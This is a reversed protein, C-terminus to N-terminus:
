ESGRQTRRGPRTERTPQGQKTRSSPRARWKALLRETQALLVFGLAFTLLVVLVLLLDM